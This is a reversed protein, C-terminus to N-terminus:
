GKQLLSRLQSRECKYQRAQEIWIEKEICSKVHLEARHILTEASLADIGLTRTDGDTEQSFKIFHKDKYEGGKTRVDNAPLICGQLQPNNLDDSVIGIRQYDVTINTEFFQDLLNILRGKSGKSDGFVARPICCGGADWDGMYFIKVRESDLEAIHSALEYLASDSLQGRFPLLPVQWRKCFPLLMGAIADKEICLVARTSQGAWKDLRFQPIASSLFHGAGDWFHPVVLERTGDVIRDWAIDENWRAQQLAREVIGYGVRSTGHDKPVIGLNSALYYVHRITQAHRITHDIALNVIAQYRATITATTSGKPRGRRRWNTHLSECSPGSQTISESIRLSPPASDSPAAPQVTSM